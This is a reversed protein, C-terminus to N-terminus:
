DLSLGKSNIPPCMRESMELISCAERPDVCIDFVSKVSDM